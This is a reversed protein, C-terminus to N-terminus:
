FVDLAITGGTEEELLMKMHIFLKCMKKTYFENQLKSFCNQVGSIKAKTKLVCM